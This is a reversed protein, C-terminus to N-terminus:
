SDGSEGEKVAKVDALVASPADLLLRPDLLASVTGPELGIERLSETSALKAEDVELFRKLRRLSLRENGPLHVAVLGATTELILTKLENRLPIGRAAAADRCSVVQRDTRRAMMTLGPASVRKQISPGAIERPSVSFEWAAEFADCQEECQAPDLILRGGRVRSPNNIAPLAVYARLFKAPGGGIFIVIDELISFYSAHEFSAVRVEIGSEDQLDIVRRLDIPSEDSTVFLRRIDAGRLAAELNRNFYRQQDKDSAWVESSVSSVAMISTGEGSNAIETNLRSYYQGTTLSIEGRVAKRLGDLTPSVVLSEVSGQWSARIAPLEDRLIRTVEAASPHVPHFSARFRRAWTVVHDANVKENGLIFNITTLGALDTPVRPLTGDQRPVRIIAIRQRGFAQLFYGLEFIINDRPSFSETGRYWTRDDASTVLVAGDAQRALRDLADLGYDGPRFVRRWPITAVGGSELSRIILRAHEDAETSAGIFVRVDAM